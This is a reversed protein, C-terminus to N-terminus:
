HRDKASPTARDAPLDGNHEYADVINQVLRHRVIDSRELQIMAIGRIGALKEMADILGSRVNDPLDVQTADGTVIMKSDGGLRTLFMLMQSATTNQAEDLIIVSENLTRGRMFALPIVEIIDNVMFRKVQEFEMMDHLADFLPRLYPNVKAQLDGPLFGLREGAEVAPRALVIRKAHGHKLMSAAAAVALYTKGTGAPGICFTLDHHLIADVYARQGATQPKISRGRTYVDIEDATRQRHDDAARGIVQGVDEVSLWDQRRLTRQLLELVAAAKSVQEPEGSLRVEDDRGVVQVGFTDRIMRLYRDASGFLALKKEPQQLAINLQVANVAAPNDTPRSVFGCVPRTCLDAPLPGNNIKEPNGPFLSLHFASAL